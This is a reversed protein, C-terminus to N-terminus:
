RFPTGGGGNGMHRTAGVVRDWDIGGPDRLYEELYGCGACVYAETEGALSIEESTGGFLGTTIRRETLVRRPVPHGGDRRDLRGEGEGTWDGADAVQRVHMIHDGACKPCRGTLKM